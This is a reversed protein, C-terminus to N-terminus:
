KEFSREKNIKVKLRVDRHESSVYVFLLTGLVQQIVYHYLLSTLSAVLFQRDHPEHAPDGNVLDLCQLLLTDPNM